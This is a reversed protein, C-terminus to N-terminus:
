VRKYIPSLLYTGHTTIGRADAKVMSDSVIRANTQSEGCAVLIEEAVARLESGDIKM